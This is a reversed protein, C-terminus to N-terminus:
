SDAEVCEVVAVGDVDVTGEYDPSNEQKKERVQFLAGSNPKNEWAM